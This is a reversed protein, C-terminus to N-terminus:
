TLECKSTGDQWNALPWVTRHMKYTKIEEAEREKYNECVFVKVLLQKNNELQFIARGGSHQARKGYGTRVYQRMRKKLNISSGIYLLGDEYGPYKCITKWKEQLVDVPYAKYPADTETRFIIEFDNPIYIKYIGSCEPFFKLVGANLEQFTYTDNESILYKEN